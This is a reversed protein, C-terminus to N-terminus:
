FQLGVPIQTLFKKWIILLIRNSVAQRFIPTDPNNVVDDVESDTADTHVIRLHRIAIQESDRRFEALLLEYRKITATLRLVVKRVHAVNREGTAEPKSRLRDITNVIACCNDQINSKFKDIDSQATSKKFDLKLHDLQDNLVDLDRDVQRCEELIAFPNTDGEVISQMELSNAGKM